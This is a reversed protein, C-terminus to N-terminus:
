IDQGTQGVLLKVADIKERGFAVANLQSLQNLAFLNEFSHRVSGSQDVLTIRNQPGVIPHLVPATIAANITLIKVGSEILGIDQAGVKAWEVGRDRLFSRESKLAYLM